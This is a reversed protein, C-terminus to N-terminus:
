KKITKFKRRSKSFQKLPTDFIIEKTEGKKIYGVLHGKNNLMYTHNPVTYGDKPWETVEQLYTIDMKNNYKYLCYIDVGCFMYISM